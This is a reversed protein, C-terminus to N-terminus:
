EGPDRTASTDTERRHRGSRKACSLGSIGCEKIRFYPTYKGDTIEVVSGKLPEGGSRLTALTTKFLTGSVNLDVLAPTAAMEM